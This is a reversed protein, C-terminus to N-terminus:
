HYSSSPLHFVPRFRDKAVQFESCNYYCYNLVGCQCRFFRYCSCIKAQANPPLAGFLRLWSVLCPPLVLLIGTQLPMLGLDRGLSPLALLLFSQAAAHAMMALLLPLATGLLSNGNKMLVQGKRRYYLQATVRSVLLFQKNFFM